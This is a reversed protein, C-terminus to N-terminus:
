TRSRGFPLNPISMSFPKSGGVGRDAPLGLHDASRFRSAFVRGGDEQRGVGVALALRDGPVEGFREAHGLAADEADHEVLDRLLRDELGELVGPLSSLFLTSACCARRTSSRIMPYLSEGSRQFFIARPREAPRTCDTATRMITSRSFSIRANTLSSDPADDGCKLSRPGSDEVGLELPGALVPDVLVEVLLARLVITARIPASGSASASSSLL